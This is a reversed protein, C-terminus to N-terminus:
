NYCQAHMSGIFHVSHDFYIMTRMAMIAPAGALINDYDTMALAETNTFFIIKYRHKCHLKLNTILHLYFMFFMQEVGYIFSMDGFVFADSTEM